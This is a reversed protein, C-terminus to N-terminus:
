ELFKSQKGTSVVCTNPLEDSRLLQHQEETKVNVVCEDSSTILVDVNEVAFQLLPKAGHFSFTMREFVKTNVHALKLIM